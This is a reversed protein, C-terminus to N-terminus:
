GQKGPKETESTISAGKTFAMEGTSFTATTSRAVGTGLSPPLRDQRPGPPQAHPSTHLWVEQSPSVMMEASGRWTVESKIKAQYGGDGGVGPSDQCM